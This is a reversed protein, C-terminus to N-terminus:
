HYGYLTLKNRIGKVHEHATSPHIQYMNAIENISYGEYLHLAVKKKFYSLGKLMNYIDVNNEFTHVVEGNYVSKNHFEESEQFSTVEGYKKLTVRRKCYNLWVWKTLQMMTALFHNDDKFKVEKSLKNIASVTVDSYLLDGEKALNLRGM